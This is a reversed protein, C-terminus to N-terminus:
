LRWEFAETHLTDVEIWSVYVVGSDDCSYNYWHSQIHPYKKDFFEVVAAVVTHRYLNSGCCHSDTLEYLEDKIYSPKFM